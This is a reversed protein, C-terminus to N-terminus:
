TPVLENTGHHSRRSPGADRFRLGVRVGRVGRVIEVVSPPACGVLALSFASAGIGIVSRARNVATEKRVSSSLYM